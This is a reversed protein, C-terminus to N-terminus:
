SILLLWTECTKIYGGQRRKESMRSIEGDFTELEEEFEIRGYRCKSKKVVVVKKNSKTKTALDALEVVVDCKARHLSENLNKRLFTRDCSADNNQNKLKNFNFLFKHMSFKWSTSANSKSTIQNRRLKDGHNYCDYNTPKIITNIFSSRNNNMDVHHRTPNTTPHPPLLPSNLAEEINQSNFKNNADINFTNYTKFPVDQLKINNQRNVYSVCNDICNSNQLKSLTTAPNFTNMNVDSTECFSIKKNIPTLSKKLNRNTVENNRCSNNNTTAATVHTNKNPSDSYTAELSTKDPNESIKLMELSIFSKNENRNISFERNNKYFPFTSKRNIKNREFNHRTALHSTLQRIWKKLKDVKNSRTSESNGAVNEYFHQGSVVDAEWPMPARVMMELKNLMERTKRTTRYISPWSPIVECPSYHSSVDDDRSGSTMSNALKSRISLPTVDDREEDSNRNLIYNNAPISKMHLNSSKTNNDNMVDATRSFVDQNCSKFVAHKRNNKMKSNYSENNNVNNLKAFNKRIKKYCKKNSNLNLRLEHQIFRNHINSYVPRMSEGVDEAPPHKGAVIENDGDDDEDIDVDYCDSDDDVDDEECASDVKMCSRVDLVDINDNLFDEKYGDDIVNEKNKGDEDNNDNYEKKNKDEEKEEEEEEEDEDDEDKGNEIENKDDEIEKEVNMERQKLTHNTINTHVNPTQSLNNTFPSTTSSSFYGPIPSHSPSLSQPSAILTFSPLTLSSSSSLSSFSLLNPRSIRLTQEDPHCVNNIYISKIDVGYSINNNNNINNLENEIIENSYCTHNSCKEDVDDDGTSERFNLQSCTYFDNSARYSEENMHREKCLLIENETTSADRQFNNFNLNYFIQKSVTRNNNNLSDIKSNEYHKNNNHKMNKFLIEEGRAEQKDENREDVEETNKSNREHKDDVMANIYFKRLHETKPTCSQMYMVDVRKLHMDVGVFNQEKFSSMTITSAEKDVKFCDANSDVGLLNKALHKEKRIPFM